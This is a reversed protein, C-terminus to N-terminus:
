LNSESNIFPYVIPSKFGSGQFAFIAAVMSNISYIGSVAALPLLSWLFLTPDQNGVGCTVSFVFFCFLTCVTMAVFTSIACNLADQSIQDIFPHKQKTCFWLLWVLPISLTPFILMFIVNILHSGAAILRYNLPIQNNMVSLHISLVTISATAM